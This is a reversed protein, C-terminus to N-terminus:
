KTRVKPAHVCNGYAAHAAEMLVESVTPHPHVTEALEDITGEANMVAAIEAIMDTARPALIHAGLIEGTSKDFILKVMGENQGMIMAKGNGSLSFVGTGIDRGTERAKPETLGVMAAEPVTYVCSPIRHPDFARCPLGAIHSAVTLGQASAAHALEMKGNLDGIAYIGPVNTRCLGDTDVHGRKTLRVGAKDLGLNDSNPKRGGAMLCLDGEVSGETGAKDTYHVTIGETISTVRVGTIIQVGGATLKSGIASSIDADLPALISDLMELITVSTGLSSFLTAFEIGIVGGGVIVLKKPCSTLELLATSDVVEPLDIGPIPIRAPRSGTALVIHDAELIEGDDLLLQRPSDLVAHNTFVTVGHSKLLGAIGNRLTKLVADKRGAFAAYDFSVEGVSVGFRGAERAERYVEASHLLSKTPVCGRNLCTGGLDKEEILATNLGNQSLRIACVYGGPGGGLVVADFKKM